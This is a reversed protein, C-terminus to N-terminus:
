VGSYESYISAFNKKNFRGTGLAPDIDLINKLRHYDGNTDKVLIGKNVGLSKSKLKLGAVEVSRKEGNSLVVIKDDPQPLQVDRIVKGLANLMKSSSSYEVKTGNIEVIDFFYVLTQTRDGRNRCYVAPGGDKFNTYAVVKFKQGDSTKITDKELPVVIM